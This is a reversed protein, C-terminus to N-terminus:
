IEETETFTFKEGAQKGSNPDLKINIRQGINHAVKEINFGIGSVLKEIKAVGEKAFDAIAETTNTQQGSKERNIEECNTIFNIIKDAEDVTIRGEKLINLVLIRVERTNLEM